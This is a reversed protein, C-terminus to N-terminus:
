NINKLVNRKNEVYTQLYSIEKAIDEKTFGPNIKLWRTENKNFNISSAELKTQVELLVEECIMKYYDFSGGLADSTILDVASKITKLNYHNGAYKGLDELVSFKDWRDVFLYARKYVRIFDMSDNNSYYTCLKALVESSSDAELELAAKVGKEPDKDKLNDFASAVVVHSKDKLLKEFLPVCEEAKYYTKIRQIATSRCASSPDNMAIDFMTEKISEPENQCIISAYILADQRVLEASDKLARRVMMSGPSNIEQVFGITTVAQGRDRVYKSHDYLYITEEEPRDTTITGVLTREADVSVLLPKENLPFEFEQSSKTMIIRKREISDKFHFDIDLPLKYLPSKTLDQIQKIKITEKKSTENWSYSVTLQPHGGKFFWQNFFWNLDEGTVKEFAHRLNDAEASSFRNDTLYVNLGKFFASDGLYSRLMHLICGGKNYSIRDYIDEAENYQYRILPPDSKEAARFYSRLSKNLDSEAKTKGYKYENWLYESYNAFGENLTINSWSKCTVLNGFWQHFLEHAIYHEYNDDINAGPDQQMNTGHVVATVNEMAGSIYDHVVIQSYKQWPYTVGLLNSFFTMMEPTNGFALKAYKEYPPDVYYSVEIGNWKDKVIAYDGVGIFVLYPAAPLNNRWHWTYTGNNNNITEILLGNSLTKFGSDVTLFIESTMKQEPSEVTPFWVSNSETEGQTWLQTPRSEDISDPDVFFLGKDSKFSIQGPVVTAEPKAIYEIAIKIEENSNYIRPLRVTLLFQDYDYKLLRRDNGNVLSVNLISMSRANLTISDSPFFHQKLTIEALGKIEKEKWLPTLFLTTNILDVRKTYAAKYEPIAYLKKEKTENKVAQEPAKCSIIFIGFTIGFLFLKRM